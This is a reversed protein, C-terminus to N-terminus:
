TYSVKYKEEYSLIERKEPWINVFHLFINFIYLLFLSLSKGNNTGNEMLKRHSRQSRCPPWPAREWPVSSLSRVRGAKENELDHSLGGVSSCHFPNYLGYHREEWMKGLLWIDWIWSVIILFREVWLSMYQTKGVFKLTIMVMYKSFLLM